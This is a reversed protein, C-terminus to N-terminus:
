QCIHAEFLGFRISTVEKAQEEVQERLSKLEDELGDGGIQTALELGTVQKVSEGFQQIFM